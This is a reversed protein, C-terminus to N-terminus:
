RKPLPCALVINGDKKTPAKKARSAHVFFENKQDESKTKLTEDLWAQDSEREKEAAEQKKKERAEREERAKRAKEAEAAKIKEIEEPSKKPKSPAKASVAKVKQQSMIM